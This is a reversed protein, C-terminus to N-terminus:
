RQVLNIAGIGGQIDLTITAPTKGYAANVYDDDDKTMGDTNVAGIGGSAHVKVGVDKPLYITAEGVGGQIEADLNTKRAGTLDLQM